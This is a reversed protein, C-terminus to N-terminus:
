GELHHDEKLGEQRNKCLPSQLVGRVTGWVNSRVASLYSEPNIPCYCYCRTSTSASGNKLDSRGENSTMRNQDPSIAYGGQVIGWIIVGAQDYLLCSAPSILATVNSKTGCQPKTPYHVSRPKLRLKFFLLTILLRQHPALHCSTPCWPLVGRSHLFPSNPDVCM